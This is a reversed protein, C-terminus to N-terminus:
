ILYANPPLHVACKDRLGDIMDPMISAFIAASEAETVCTAPTAAIAPSAMSVALILAASSKLLSM